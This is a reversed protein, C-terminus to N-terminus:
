FQLCHLEGQEVEKTQTSPEAVSSETVQKTDKIETTKSQQVGENVVAEKDVDSIDKVQTNNDVASEQSEKDEKSGSRDCQAVKDQAPVEASPDCLDTKVEQIAGESDSQQTTDGASASTTDPAECLEAKSDTKEAVTLEVKGDKSDNAMEEKAPVLPKPPITVLSAKAQELAVRTGATRYLCVFWWM